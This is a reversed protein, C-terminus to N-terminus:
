RRRKRRKGKRITKIKKKKRFFGVYVITGLILGVGGTWYVWAYDGGKAAAGFDIRGGRDSFRDDPDFAVAVKKVVDGVTILIEDGLNDNHLHFLAEYYGRRDTKANKKVGGKHELLVVAGSLPSGTEDRVYGSVTFRHDAEHTALLTKPM